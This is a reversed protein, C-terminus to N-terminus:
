SGTPGGKGTTHFHAERHEDGNALAGDLWDICGKGGRGLLVSRPVGGGSARTGLRFASGRALRDAEGFWRFQRGFSM